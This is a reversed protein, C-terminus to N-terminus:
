VCGKISVSSKGPVIDILDILINKIADPANDMLKNCLPKSVSYSVSEKIPNFEAPLKDKQAVYKDKNLVYRVPTDIEIKWVDYEYTKKGEHAHNFEDMIYASLEKKMVLLKALRKNILNLAKINDALCLERTELVLQHQQQM